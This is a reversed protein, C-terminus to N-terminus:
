KVRYSRRDNGMCGRDIIKCKTLQSMFQACQMITANFNYINKITTRHILADYIARCMEKVHVFPRWNDGNEVFIEGKVQADLYMQNILLNYRTKSTLGYATGFRLATYNAMRVIQEAVFKTWAYVSLPNPVSFTHCIERHNTGYISCTSAYILKNIKYFDACKVVNYTGEQNTRIALEKNLECKADGVIAALHIVADCGRMYDCLNEYDLIDNGDILDYEVVIMGKAELYPVLASGVYGKSGTVM